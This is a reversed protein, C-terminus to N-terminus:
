GPGARYRNMLPASAVTGFERSSLKTHTPHGKCDRDQDKRADVCRNARRFKSAVCHELREPVTPVDDVEPMVTSICRATVGIRDIQVVACLLARKRIGAACVGADDTQRELCDVDRYVVHKRARDAARGLGGAEREWVDLAGGRARENVSQRQRLFLQAKGGVLQSLQECRYGRGSCVRHQDPVGGIELFGGAVPWLLLASCQDEARVSM